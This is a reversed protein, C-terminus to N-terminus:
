WPQEFLQIVSITPASGNASLAYLEDQTKVTLYGTAAPPLLTGGGNTLDRPSQAFRIGSTGDENLLQVEVRDGDQGTLRVPEGTNAPVTFHRHSSTRLVRPRRAEVIRVPVPVPEIAPASYAPRIPKIGNPGRMFEARERATSAAPPVGHANLDKVEPPSDPVPTRQRIVPPNEVHVAGGPIPSPDSAMRDSAGIGDGSPTNPAGLGRPTHKGRARGTGM